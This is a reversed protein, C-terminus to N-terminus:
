SVRAVEVWVEKARPSPLGWVGGAGRRLSGRTGARSASRGPRARALKWTGPGAVLSSRTRTGRFGPSAGGPFALSVMRSSRVPGAVVPRQASTRGTWSLNTGVRWSSSPRPALFGCPCPALSQGSGLAGGGRASRPLERGRRRGRGRGGRGPRTKWEVTQSQLSLSLCETSLPSAAVMFRSSPSGEKTSSM